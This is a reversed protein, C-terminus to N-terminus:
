LDNRILDIERFLLKCKQYESFELEKILSDVKKQGNDLLLLGRINICARQYVEKKKGESLILYFQKIFYHHLQKSYDKQLVDICEIVQRSNYDKNLINWLKDTMNFYDYLKSLIFESPHYKEIDNMIRLSDENLSALHSVDGDELFSYLHYDYIMQKNNPYYKIFCKLLLPINRKYKRYEQQIIDMIKNYLSIPNRTIVYSVYIEYAANQILSRVIQKENLPKLIYLSILVHSKVSSDRLSMRKLKEFYQRLENYFSEPCGNRQYFYAIWRYGDYLTLDENLLIQDISFQYHKNQYLKEIKRKEDKNLLPMNTNFYDVNQILKKLRQNLQNLFFKNEDVSKIYTDYNNELYNSYTERENKLLEKKLLKRIEEESLENLFTDLADDFFLPRVYHSNRRHQENRFMFNYGSNRPKFDDILQPEIAFSLAVMHKCVHRDQAYPCTCSAKRIHLTDISVQYIGNSGKVEGEYVHDNIMKTNLVGGDNYIRYGRDIIIEKANTLVDM